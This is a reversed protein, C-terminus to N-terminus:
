DLISVCNSFVSMIDTAMCGRYKGWLEVVSVNEKLKVGNKGNLMCPEFWNGFDGLFCISDMSCQTLNPVDLMVNKGKDNLTAAVVKGYEMVTEFDVYTIGKRLHLEIIANAILDELRIWM